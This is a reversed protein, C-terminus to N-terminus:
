VKLWYDGHGSLEQVDHGLPSRLRELGLKSRAGAQISPLGAGEGSM